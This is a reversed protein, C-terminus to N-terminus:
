GGRQNLFTVVVGPKVADAMELADWNTMRVCGHSGTKGILKPGPSGHLGYSPADLAIWVLGVPNNPGSQVTFKGHKKPGWTLKKPDYVYTPNRAVGKVKHTGSPSPREPSGVTAPAFAILKDDKDYATVSAKAKDVQIHDIKPLSVDGVQAVALVKGAKGFDAGPNLAQLAEQSMHFREALMELPTSYGAHELQSLKWLDEGVDPYYPGDVDAQTVTYTAAVPQSGPANLAAWVAPTIDGDSQLGRAQAFAAVAHRLNTGPTGDIVGPSFGARALLVEAKMLMPDPAPPAAAGPGTTNSAGATTNPVSATTNSAAGGADPAPAAYLAKNIQDVRQQVAPDTAEAQAAARAPPKAPPPAQATQNGGSPSCAAVLVALACVSLSAYRFTMRVSEASSAEQLAM